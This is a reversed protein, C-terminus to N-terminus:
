KTLYQRLTETGPARTEPMWLFAAFALPLILFYPLMAVHWSITALAGGLLPMLIQAGRDLAVKFGQGHIEQEDTLLDSILVITLPTLLAITVGQVARCFLLWDFGSAFAECGGGISLLMLGIILM